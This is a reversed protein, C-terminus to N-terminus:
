GLHGVKGRRRRSQKATSNCSKQVTWLACSRDRQVTVLNTGEPEQAPSPSESLQHSSSSDVVRRLEGRQTEPNRKRGRWVGAQQFSSPKTGTYIIVRMYICIYTYICMCMHCTGAVRQKELGQPQIWATLCQKGGLRQACKSTVLLRRRQWGCM